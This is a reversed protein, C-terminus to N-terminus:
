STLFYLQDSSKRIVEDQIDEVKTKSSRTADIIQQINAKIVEVIKLHSQLEKRSNPIKTLEEQVSVFLYRKTKLANVEDQTIVSSENCKVHNKLISDIKKLLEECLLVVQSHCNSNENKELVDSCVGIKVARFNFLLCKKIMFDLM